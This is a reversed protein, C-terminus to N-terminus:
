KRFENISLVPCQEEGLGVVANDSATMVALSLSEEVCALNRFLPFAVGRRLLGKAPCVVGSRGRLATLWVLRLESSENSKPPRDFSM